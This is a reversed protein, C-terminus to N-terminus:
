EDLYKPEFPAVAGISLGVGHLVVPRDRRVKELVALPRGGVGMFNESIAEIWAVDPRQDLFQAYHKTRLGVGHGLKVRSFM